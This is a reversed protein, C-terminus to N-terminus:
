AIVKESASKRSRRMALVGFGGLLLGFSVMSSAEPVAAPSSSVGVVADVNGYGSFEIYDITSLGSGALSFAQGGAAGNYLTNDDYAVTQGFLSSASLSPDVPKTFDNQTGWGSPNSASIGAWSYANEPYFTQLTTLSVFHIGDASVSVQPVGNQYIGYTSGVVIQSMDTTPTITTFNTGFVQANGYVIFDDGYWHSDSHTIPAAMQVIISGPTGSSPSGLGAIANVGSSTMYYAPDVMSAHYQGAPEFSGPDIFTTTPQGLVANPDNVYANSSVVPTGIISAAYNQSHAATTGALVFALSLLASAPRAFSTKM